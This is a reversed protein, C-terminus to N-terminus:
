YIHYYSGNALTVASDANATQHELQASSTAGTVVNAGSFAIYAGVSSTGYDTYREQQYYLINNNADWQVVRGIALLQQKHLRKM